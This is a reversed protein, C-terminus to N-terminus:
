RTGGDEPRARPGAQKKTALYTEQTFCGNEREFVERRGPAEVEKTERDDVPAEAELAGLLEEGRKGGVPV